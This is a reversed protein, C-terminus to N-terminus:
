RGQTEEKYIRSTSYEDLKWLKKFTKNLNQCIPLWKEYSTAIAVEEDDTIETVKGSIVWIPTM